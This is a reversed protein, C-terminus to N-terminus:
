KSPKGTEAGKFLLEQPRKFVGWAKIAAGLEPKDKAYEELTKGEMTADIAQRFAKAGAKAGMPHGAVAGGGGIILDTGFEEMTVPVLGPFMGGGPLVWTKKIHGMPAHYIMGSRYSLDPIVTDGPFSFKGWPTGFITFDAGSIRSLKHWVWESMGASRGQNFGAAGDPHFLAPVRLKANEAIARLGSWGATFNVMLANAGSDILKEATEVIRYTENTVNITFLTKEGTQAEAKDLAEMVASLREEIRCRPLDGTMEDDKIIDIGGLAAQYCQEATEKPTLGIKPKVMSLTLPREKVKLLERVGPVGFKPGQFAKLWSNPFWLDLLKVVGGINGNVATLLMPVNPEQWQATPFGFALFAKRRYPDEPDSPLPYYGLLKASHIEKLQETEGPVPVWTGTSGEFGVFEVMTLYDLLPYKHEAYLIAIVYKDRDISEFVNDFMVPDHIRRLRLM